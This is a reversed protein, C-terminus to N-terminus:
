PKFAPIDIYRDPRDANGAIHCGAEMAAGARAVFPRSRDAQHLPKRHVLPPCVTGGVIELFWPSSRAM